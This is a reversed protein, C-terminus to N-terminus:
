PCCKLKVTLLSLDGVSHPRANRLELQTTYSLLCECENSGLGGQSDLSIGSVRKESLSTSSYTSMFM